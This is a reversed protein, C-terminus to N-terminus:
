TIRGGQGERPGSWITEAEEGAGTKERSGVARGERPGSWITEAEEGAGTKERSGVAGGKEHVAGSLRRRSGRGRRRM